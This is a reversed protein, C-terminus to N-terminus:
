LPLGVPQTGISAAGVISPARPPFVAEGMCKVVFAIQILLSRKDVAAEHWGLLFRLMDFRRRQFRDLSEVQIM